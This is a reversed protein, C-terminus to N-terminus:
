KHEQKGYRCGEQKCLLTNDFPLCYGLSNSNGCHASKASATNSGYIAIDYCILMNYISRSESDMYAQPTGTAFRDCWEDYYHTNVEPRRGFRLTFWEDIFKKNVIQQKMHIVKKNINM